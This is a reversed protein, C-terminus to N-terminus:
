RTANVSLTIMQQLKMKLSSKHLGSRWHLLSNFLVVFKRPFIRFAVLSLAPNPDTEDETRELFFAKSAGWCLSFLSSMIGIIVSPSFRGTSFGIVLQQVSQPGAEFFNESLSSKAIEHQIAEVEPWNKYDFDNYGFRMKHLKYVLFANRFPHVLPIHYVVDMYDANKYDTCLQFLFKILHILFPVWVWFFSMMAWSTQDEYVWLVFVM